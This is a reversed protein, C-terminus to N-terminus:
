VTNCKPYPIENVLLNKTKYGVWYWIDSTYKKKITHIYIKDTKTSYEHM